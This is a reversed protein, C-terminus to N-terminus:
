RPYLYLERIACSQKFLCSCGVRDLLSIIPQRFVVILRWRQGSLLVFPRRERSVSRICDLSGHGCGDVDEAYGEEEEEDIVVDDCGEEERGECLDWGSM